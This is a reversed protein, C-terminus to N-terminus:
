KIKTKGVILMFSLFLHSIAFVLGYRRQIFYLFIGALMELGWLIRSMRRYRITETEDLPKNQDPVPAYRIVCYGSVLYSFPYYTFVFGERISQCIWCMCCILIASVVTCGLNTRAHYGGCFSRLPIYSILFLLVFLPADFVIAILIALAINVAQNLLLEYAYQYVARETDALFGKRIQWAVIKGSMKELM